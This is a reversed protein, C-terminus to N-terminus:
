HAFEAFIGEGLGAGETELLLFAFFEVFFDGGWDRARRSSFSSASLFSASFSAFSSAFFCFSLSFASSLLFACSSCRSFHLFSASSLLSSCLFFYPHYYKSSHNYKNCLQTIGIIVKSSTTTFKISTPLPHPACM